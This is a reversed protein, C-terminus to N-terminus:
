MGFWLESHRGEDQARVVEVGHGLWRLGYGVSLSRRQPTSATLTSVTIALLREKLLDAEEMSVQFVSLM